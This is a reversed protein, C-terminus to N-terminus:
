RDAKANDLDARTSEHAAAFAARFGVNKRPRGGATSRLFKDKNWEQALQQYRAVSCTTVIRTLTCRAVCAPLKAHKHQCACKLDKGPRAYYLGANFMGSLLVCRDVKRASGSLQSKSTVAKLDHWLPEPLLPPEFIDDGYSSENEHHYHSSSSTTHRHTFRAPAAATTRPRATAIAPRASHVGISAYPGNRPRCRGCSRKFLQQTSM